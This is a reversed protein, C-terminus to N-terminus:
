RTTNYSNLSNRKKIRAVLHQHLIVTSVVLISQQLVREETCEDLVKFVFTVLCTTCQLLNRKMETECLVFRTSDISSEWNAFQLKCFKQCKSGSVNTSGCTVDGDLESLLIVAYFPDVPRVLM